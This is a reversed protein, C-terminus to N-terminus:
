RLFYDGVKDEINKGEKGNRWNLKSGLNSLFWNAVSEYIKIIFRKIM